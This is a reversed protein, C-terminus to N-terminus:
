HHHGHMVAHGKGRSILYINIPYTVAFAVALAFLLAGWFLLSTLPAEMAGPILLMIGNDVIEMTVISITDSAFALSLAKKFNMGSRFLPLLTLGYGFFFALIIALIITALNTWGLATGIIMGLVEGIACGTLCHLTAQFATHNLSQAAHRHEGSGRIDHHHHNGQAM